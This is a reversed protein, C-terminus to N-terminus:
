PLRGASAPGRDRPWTEPSGSVAEEIGRVLRRLVAGYEPDVELLTRGRAVGEAIARSFPIRLLIPLGARQCFADIGGSAGRDRNVVVGAPVGLTRVVEVALELDHLGFPTPETVLITYDCGGVTEVVPCSTGPPADLITIGAEEQVWEKLRRIVPVAMAEGVNLTGAVFRIGDAAGSELIGV